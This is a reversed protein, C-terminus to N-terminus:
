GIRLVDAIFFTGVGILKESLNKNNTIMLAYAVLAKVM